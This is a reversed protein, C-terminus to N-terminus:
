CSDIYTNKVVVLGKEPDMSILEHDFYLEVGEQSEAKDLLMKNLLKRDVSNITEGFDGYPQAHCPQKPDQPHIMRAAMPIVTALVEEDIGVGKLALLGRSSLALNISKNGEVHEDKRLDEFL